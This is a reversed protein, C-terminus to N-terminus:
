SFSIILFCTILVVVCLGDIWYFCLSDLFEEGLIGTAVNFDSSRVMRRAYFVAALGITSRRQVSKEKSPGLPGRGM